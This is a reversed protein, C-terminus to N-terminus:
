VVRVDDVPYRIQQLEHKTRQFPIADIDMGFAEGLSWFISDLGAAVALTSAGGFRSNCEIIHMKGSEDLIAQLVAHGTLKLQEFIFSCTQELKPNTFTTTIQSEGNKVYDRTRLIIGKVKQKKNMWADVSIETGYVMPQFIPNKLQLAFSTAADPNLNLGVRGGAGFRDKVVIREGIVEHATTSTPITPLNHIKGFESFAVKDFCLKVGEKPAVLVHIGNRKFLEANEAWYELESDRTPLVANINRAKCGELILKSNAEETEPMQWFENVLHKSVVNPNTDGAFVLGDKHLKKCAIQAIRILPIKQSASTILLGPISSTM